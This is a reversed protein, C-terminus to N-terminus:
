YIEEEVHELRQKILSMFVVLISKISSASLFANKEERKEKKKKFALSSFSLLFLM